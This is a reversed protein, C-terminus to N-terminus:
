ARSRVIRIARQADGLEVPHRYKPGLRYKLVFGAVGFSNLWQAVLTGEKETALHMYSGGPCVMVAMGTAGNQQPLFPTLSPKDEDGSGQAGPAGNPWLLEAQPANPAQAWILGGAMLIAAYRM